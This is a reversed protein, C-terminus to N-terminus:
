VELPLKEAIALFDLAHWDNLHLMLYGESRMPQGCLECTTAPAHLLHTLEEPCLDVLLGAACRGGQADFMKGRLQRVGSLAAARLVDKARQRM